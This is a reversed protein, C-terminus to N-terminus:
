LNIKCCFNRNAELREHNVKALIPKVNLLSQDNSIENPTYLTHAGHPRVNNYDYEFHILHAGFDNSHIPQYKFYQQKMIKFSAEIMSNSYRVDKLAIKKNITVNCKKIFDYVTSNNNESGGDVILDIQQDKITIDFENFIARRLSATRLEASLVTSYSLDVLKRSLNDLVSYVYIKVNDSTIYYSVDMHWIENVKKAKVSGRKKSVKKPKRVEMLGIRKAYRYWTTKSMSITNDRIAQAWITGVAWFPYKGKELYEKLTKIELKSIQQPLRKFCINSLSESCQYKRYSKWSTFMKPTIRLFKCISNEIKKNDFAKSLNDILDVFVYKNKRIMKQFDDKGISDLITLYLRAFAFFSKKFLKLREDLMVHVDDM